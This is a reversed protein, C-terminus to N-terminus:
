VANARALLTAKDGTTPQDHDSLFSRLGQITSNDDTFRAGATQRPTTSRERPPESPRVEAARRARAADGIAGGSDAIADLRKTAELALEDNGQATANALQNRAQQEEITPEVDEAM